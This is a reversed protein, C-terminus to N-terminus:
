NEWFLDDLTLVKQYAGSHAGYKLGKNTILVVQITKNKDLVNQVAEVRQELRIEDDETASYEDKYFKMECLNVINDDRDILLDIQAGKVDSGSPIIVQSNRSVVGSIGLCRKIQLVHKCCLHEFAIGRWANLAASRQSDLWYHPDSIKKGSIFRLYFSCFEDKLKYHTGRKQPYEYEYVEIFDSECLNKLMESFGGGKSIGTKESIEDRTFGYNRGALVEVIKVYDGSAKFLTKFLRDFEGKLPSNDEFFLTDVNQAYGLGPKMLSLYYPIGGVTMYVQAIDYRSLKINESKLMEETEKLNFPLLKMPCSLRDYLGGQSNIVNDLIWSTSSGCIVLMLNDRFCGWGNWFNEFAALFGAKPTDMWPLEDIFVLQRKGNDKCELLQSLLLFAQIWSTPCPVSLDMGARLLSVHFAQLQDKMTVKHQQDYPSLGSHQFTIRGKFVEGILFTKGVRRRGYVAVFQAKDSRYRRELEEIESKRGIIKAM